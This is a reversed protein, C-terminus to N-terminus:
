ILPLKKRKRSPKSPCRHENFYPCHWTSEELGVTKVKLSFHLVSAWFKQRWGGVIEATHEKIWSTSPFIERIDLGPVNSSGAPLVQTIAKCKFGCGKWGAKYVPRRRWGCTWVPKRCPEPKAPSFRQPTTSPAPNRGSKQKREPRVEGGHLETLGGTHVMGATGNGAGKSGSDLTWTLGGLELNSHHACSSKYIFCLARPCITWLYHFVTTGATLGHWLHCKQSM